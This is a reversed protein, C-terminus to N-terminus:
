YFVILREKDPGLFSELDGSKSWRAWWTPEMPFNLAGRIHGTRYEWEQRTDVLLLSSSSKQYREALQETTMIQYGGARAESLVDEWTAQTPALSGNTFWLASVTIMIATLALLSTKFNRVSETM